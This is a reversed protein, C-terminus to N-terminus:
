LCKWEVSTVMSLIEMIFLGYYKWYCFYALEFYQFLYVNHVSVVGPPNSM